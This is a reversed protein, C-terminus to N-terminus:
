RVQSPSRDITCKDCDGCVDPVNSFNTKKKCAVEAGIALNQESASTNANMDGGNRSLQCGEETNDTKIVVGPVTTNRLNDYMSVPRSKVEPRISPSGITADSQSASMITVTPSISDHKLLPKTNAM